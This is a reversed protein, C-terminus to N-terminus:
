LRFHSIQRSVERGAGYVWRQSLIGTIPSGFAVLDLWEEDNVVALHFMQKLAVTLM